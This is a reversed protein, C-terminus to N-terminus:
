ESVEDKSPPPTEVLVLPAKASLQPPEEKKPFIGLIEPVFGNSVHVTYKPQQKDRPNRLDEVAKDFGRHYATSEPLFGVFYTILCSLGCAPGLLALMTGVTDLQAHFSVCVICTLVLLLLQLAVLVAARPHLDKLNFGFLPLRWPLGM